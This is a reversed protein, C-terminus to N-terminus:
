PAVGERRTPAPNEVMDPQLTVRTAVAGMAENFTEAAIALVARVDTASILTASVESAKRERLAQTASQDVAHASQLAQGLRDAVLRALELQREGVPRDAPIDFTMAGVAVGRYQIPLYLRQLEGEVEVYPAPSSLATKLAPAMESNPTLQPGDVTNRLNFGLVQEPMQSKGWRDVTPAILPGTGPRPVSETVTSRESITHQMEEILRVEVLNAALQRALTALATQEGASFQPQSSHIELVALLNDGANVPLLLASLAPAVLKRGTSSEGTIVQPTPNQAVQEVIAHDAANASEPGTQGSLGPRVVRRIATGDVVFLQAQVYGMDDRLLQVTRILMDTEDHSPILTDIYSASAALLARERILQGLSERVQGGLLLMLVTVAALTAFLALLDGSLQTIGGLVVGRVLTLALVFLAIVAFGARDLLLGAAVLPIVLQIPTSLLDNSLAPDLMPLVCLVSLMIVYLWAAANLRRMQLLVLIAVAAVICFLTPVLLTSTLTGSLAPPVVILALWFALGFVLLWNLAFLAVARRTDIPNDYATNLRFLRSIPNM